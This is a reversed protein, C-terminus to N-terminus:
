HETYSHRDSVSIPMDYLGRAEREMCGIETKGRGATLLIKKMPKGLNEYYLLFAIKTNINPYKIM